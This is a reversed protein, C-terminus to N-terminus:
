DLLSIARTFQTCIRKGEVGSISMLQDPTVMIKEFYNKLINAVRLTLRVFKERFQTTAKRKQKQASKKTLRKCPLTTM